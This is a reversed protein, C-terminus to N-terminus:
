RTRALEVEASALSGAFPVNPKRIRVRVADVPYDKLIQRILDGALTELLKHRSVEVVSEVTRYIAEYNVTDGLADTQSAKELSASVELDLHIRQGVEREAPSVGLHAFLVIDNLRVSDQAM